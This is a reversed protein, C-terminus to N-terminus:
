ADAVVFGRASLSDVIRRVDDEITRRDVEFGDALAEVLDDVTRPEVLARWVAGGSGSLLDFDTRWRAALIVEAGISRWLVGPTRRLVVDNM